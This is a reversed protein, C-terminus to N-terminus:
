DAIEAQEVPKEHDEATRTRPVISKSRSWATWARITAIRTPGAGKGTSVVKASPVSQEILWNRVANARDKSLPGTYTEDPDYIYGDVKIRSVSSPAKNYIRVIQSLEKQAKRPDKFAAQDSVFEVAQEGFVLDVDGCGTDTTSVGFKTETSDGIQTRTNVIPRGGLARVLDQYFDRLIDKQKPSLAEQPVQTDGLGVFLLSYDSLYSRGYKDALTRIKKERAGEDLLLDSHAFDVEGSDSLGSGVVTITSRPEVNNMAAFIGDLYNAGNGAPKLNNAFSALAKANKRADREARTKNVSMPVLKLVDPDPRIVEPTGTASVFVLSNVLDEAVEGKHLLLTEELQKATDAGLSPKPTNQTNGFVFALVDSPPPEYPRSLNFLQIALLVASAAGILKTATGLFRLTGLTRHAQYMRYTVLLVVALTILLLIQSDSNSGLNERLNTLM